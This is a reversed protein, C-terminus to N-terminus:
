RKVAIAELEHDRDYEELAESWKMMEAHAVASDKAACYFTGDSSAKMLEVLGSFAHVANVYQEFIRERDDNM